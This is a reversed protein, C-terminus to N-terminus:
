ILQLLRSIGLQLGRIESLGRLRGICTYGPTKLPPKLLDDLMTLGHDPRFVLRWDLRGAEKRKNMELLTAKVVAFMDVSGELHPAEYFSGDDNRQTSRLHMAQIRSGYREIMGPLDNDARAGFSGTCFCLGNAPSDVMALLDQIDKECAVIRPLGLIPFPPDDPHIAM